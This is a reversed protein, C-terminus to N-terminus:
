RIFGRIQDSYGHVGAASTLECQFEWSEYPLFVRIEGCELGVDDRANRM